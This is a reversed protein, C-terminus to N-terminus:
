RSDPRARRAVPSLRNRVCPDYAGAFLAFPAPFAVNRAPSFRGHQAAEVRRLHGRRLCINPERGAQYGAFPVDGVGTRRLEQLLEYRIELM